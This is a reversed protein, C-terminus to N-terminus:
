LVNLSNYYDRIVNNNNNCKKNNWIAVTKCLAYKKGGMPLTEVKCLLIWLDTEFEILVFYM